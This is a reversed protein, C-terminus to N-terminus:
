QVPDICTDKHEVKSSKHDRKLHQDPTDERNQENSKVLFVEVVVWRNSETKNTKM